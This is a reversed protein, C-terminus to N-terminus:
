LRARFSTSVATLVSQFMPYHSDLERGHKAAVVCVFGLLGLTLILILLDTLIVGMKLVRQRWSTQDYVVPGDPSGKLNSHHSAESPGHRDAELADTSDTMPGMPIFQISDEAAATRSKFRASREWSM